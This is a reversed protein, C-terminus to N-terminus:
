ILARYVFLLIRRFPRLRRWLAIQWCLSPDDASIRRSPRIYTTVVGCVDQEQCHEVGRVNGDGQLVLRAGEKHIVRHLVYHGPAIQALVADGVSCSRAPALQVRDRGYEIFPRMSYGKVWIIATHGEALKESVLALFADNPLELRTTDSLTGNQRRYHRRWPSLMVRLMHAAVTKLMKM